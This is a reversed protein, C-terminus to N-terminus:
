QRINAHSVRTITPAPGTVLGALLGLAFGCQLVPFFVLTAFTVAPPEEKARCRFVLIAYVAFAILLLWRAPSLALAITLLVAAPSIVHRLRIFSPNRQLMKARWFGYRNWQRISGILGRKILFRCPLPVRLIRYGMQRLRASMEADENAEMAENFGGAKQLLGPRWAGLYINDVERVDDGVRFDVGGLGMPNTYLAGVMRDVFTGGAVPRQACGICCVNAPAEELARVALAVYKPDYLTHADLRLVIDDEKTRQLGLNLSTPIKRRVNSIVCGPIESKPLWDRLIQASGDDSDGDVAVFFMREHDYTQCEISKLVDPLHRAENYVPMILVVRSLNM